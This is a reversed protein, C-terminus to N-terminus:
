LLLSENTRRTKLYFNVFTSSVVPIWNVLLIILKANLAKLGAHMEWFSEELFHTVILNVYIEYTSVV